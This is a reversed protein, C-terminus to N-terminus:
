FFRASVSTSSSPRWGPRDGEEARVLVADPQLQDRARDPCRASLAEDGETMVAPLPEVDGGEDRRGGALAMPVDAVADELREKLTQQRQESALGACAWLARDDKQEVAGAPVSFGSQAHQVTQPADVQRGIGGFELGGLVEPADDVFGDDVSVEVPQGLDLVTDLLAASVEFGLWFSHSSVDEEM